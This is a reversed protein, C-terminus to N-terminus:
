QSPTWRWRCVCTLSRAFRMRFCTSPRPWWTRTAVGSSGADARKPSVNQSNKGRLTKPLRREANRSAGDPGSQRVVLTGNEESIMLTRQSRRHERWALVLKALVEIWRKLVGIIADAQMRDSM